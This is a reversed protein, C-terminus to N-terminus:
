DNLVLIDASDMYQRRYKEFTPEAINDFYELARDVGWSREGREEILRWRNRRVSTSAVVFVALDMVGVVTESLAHLGECVVFQAAKMSRTGSRKHTLHSWQPAQVEGGRALQALHDGLLVLDATDPLDFNRSRLDCFDRNYDDVSVVTGGLRRALSTKGSGVGGGIGVIPIDRIPSIDALAESLANVADDWAVELQKAM